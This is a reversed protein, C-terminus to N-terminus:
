CRLGAPLFYKEFSGLRHLFFILESCKTPLYMKTELLKVYMFTFSSMDSVISEDFCAQFLKILYIVKLVNVFCFLEIYIANNLKM